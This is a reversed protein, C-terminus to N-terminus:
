DIISRGVRNSRSKKTFDPCKGFCPTYKVKLLGRERQAKQCDTGVDHVPGVMAFPLFSEFRKAACFLLAETSIRVLPVHRENWKISKM